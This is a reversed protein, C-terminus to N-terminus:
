APAQQQVVHPYLLPCVVLAAAGQQRPLILPTPATRRMAQTECRTHAAFRVPHPHGPASPTFCCARKCMCEVGCARMLSSRSRWSRAAILVSSPLSASSSLSLVSRHSIACVYHMLGRDTQWLALVSASRAKNHTHCGIGLGALWQILLNVGGGALAPQFHIAGWQRSYHKPGRGWQSKHM